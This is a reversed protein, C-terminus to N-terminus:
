ADAITNLWRKDFLTSFIFGFFFPNVKQFNPCDADHLNLDKIINLKKQSSKIKVWM